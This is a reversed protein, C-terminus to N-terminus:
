HARQLSNKKSAGEKDTIFSSHPSAVTWEAVRQSIEQPMGSKPWPDFIWSVAGVGGVAGAVAVGVLALM